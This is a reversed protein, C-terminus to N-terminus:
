ARRSCLIVAEGGGGRVIQPLLLDFAQVTPGCPSAAGGSALAYFPKVAAPYDTVFVPGGVVREALFREHESGLGAAWRVPAEFAASPGARQLTAIADDYTMRAFPAPPAALAACREAPSLGAPQQQQQKGKQGGGGAGRGADTLCALDSACAAAVDAAVGRICDEALQM